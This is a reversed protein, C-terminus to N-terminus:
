SQYGELSTFLPFNLGIVDMGAEDNIKQGEIKFRNAVAGGRGSVDYGYHKALEVPSSVTRSVGTLIADSIVARVQERTLQILTM